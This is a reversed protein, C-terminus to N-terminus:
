AELESELENILDKLPTPKLLGKEFKNKTKSYYEALDNRKDEIIRKTLIDVLYEQEFLPLEVTLDLVEEFSM